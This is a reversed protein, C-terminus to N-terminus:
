VPAGNEDVWQLSIIQGIGVCIQKPKKDISDDGIIKSYECKVCLLGDKIEEITGVYAMISLSSGALVQVHDGKVPMKAMVPM